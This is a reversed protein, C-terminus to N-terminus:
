GVRKGVAIERPGWRVIDCLRQRMASGAAQVSFQRRITEAGAAGIRQRMEQNEYLIRMWRAAQEADPSAWQMERRFLSESSPNYRLEAFDVRGFRYSVGCSNNSNLFEESGSYRTAIVPVGFYMAEAMGLGFGEARHLSVYVDSLSTLASMEADSLDEDIVVGGVDEMTRRLDFNAEAWNALNLTKMVLCM